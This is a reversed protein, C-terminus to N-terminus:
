TDILGTVSFMRRLIQRERKIKKSILISQLNKRFSTSSSTKCVLFSFLFNNSGFQSFILFGKSLNLWTLFSNLSTQNRPQSHDNNVSQSLLPKNKHLFLLFM